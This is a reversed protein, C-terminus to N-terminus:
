PRAKRMKKEVCYPGRVDNCLQLMKVRRRMANCYNICYRSLNVDDCWRLYM